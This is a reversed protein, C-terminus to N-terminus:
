LSNAVREALAAAHDVCDGVSVGRQYNTCFFLGSYQTELSDIADTVRSHGIAYQPIAKEWRFVHSFVPEGSVGIIDRLEAAVMEILEDADLGVLEPHRMGGVFTTLAVAGEPSRRDFLSSSFITGLIRRGEVEPVLFGFGDLPHRVDAHAYGLFVSAVPAYPIERLLAATTADLSEVFRAAVDTPSSVVVCDTAVGVPRIATAGSQLRLSEGLGEALARTLVEMGDDFSALKAPGKKGREANRERRAKATRLAGKIVGGHDREFEHMPPFASRLSLREPDGAYVGSVFPGIAYDLFERGFRRRVFDAVSEDEDGRRRGAFLEGAIRAKGRLTFLRTALLSPPAMPLAHLTGGRLIFRKSARPSAHHLRDGLGLEGVLRDLGPKSDLTSNPGVEYLFGAESRTEIVGGARGSKELVIVRKGRRRLFHACSLGSIGAGIVVVDANPHSM